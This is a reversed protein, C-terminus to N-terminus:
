HAVPPKGWWMLFPSFDCLFWLFVFLFLNPLLV